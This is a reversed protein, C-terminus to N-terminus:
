DRPSPSTYLLCVYLFKKNKVKGAIQLMLTSKGIGPDGGILIVSGSVIGGGLVRDLEEIGTSFRNEGDENSVESILKMNAVAFSSKAKTKREERRKSSEVVTETFTNWAECSPCKGIWRPSSYGCASCIYNVKLKSIM